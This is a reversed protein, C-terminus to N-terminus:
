SYDTTYLGRKIWESDFSVVMRDGFSVVMVDTDMDRVTRIQKNTSLVDETNHSSPPKILRM